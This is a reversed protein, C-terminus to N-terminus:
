LKKTEDEVDRLLRACYLSGGLFFCNGLFDMLMWRSVMGGAPGLGSCWYNWGLYPLMAVGFATFSLATMDSTGLVLGCTMAQAGFCRVFLSTTSNAM